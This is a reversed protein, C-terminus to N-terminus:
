LEGHRGKLAALGMEPVGPRRFGAVRVAAHRGATRFDVVSPLSSCRIEFTARKENAPKELSVPRTARRVSPSAQPSSGQAARVSRGRNKQVLGNSRSARGRIVDGVRQHRLAATECGVQLSDEAIGAAVLDPGGDSASVPTRLFPFAGRPATGRLLPRTSEPNPQPPLIQVQSRRTILVRSNANSPM